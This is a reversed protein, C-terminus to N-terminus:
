MLLLSLELLSMNPLLSAMFKSSVLAVMVKFFVSSFIVMSLSLILSSLSLSNCNYNGNTLVIWM